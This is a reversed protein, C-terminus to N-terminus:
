LRTNRIAWSVAMPGQCDFVVPAELSAPPVTREGRYESDADDIKGFHPKCGWTMLAPPKPLM